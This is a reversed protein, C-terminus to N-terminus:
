HYSPIEREPLVEIKPSQVSDQETKNDVNPIPSPESVASVPAVEEPQSPAQVPERPVEPQSPPPSYQAAEASDKQKLILKKLMGKIRTRVGM